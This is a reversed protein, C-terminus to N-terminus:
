RKMTPRTEAWKPHSKADPPGEPLMRSVLMFFLRLFPGVMVILIVMKAELFQRFDSGFFPGFITGEFFMNKRGKQAQPGERRRIKATKPGLVHGRLM